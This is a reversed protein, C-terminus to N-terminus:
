NNGGNSLAVEFSNDWERLNGTGGGGLVLIGSWEVRVFGKVGKEGKEKRYNGEM